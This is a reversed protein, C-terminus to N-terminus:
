PITVASGGSWDAGSHARSEVLVASANLLVDQTILAGLVTSSNIDAWGSLTITQLDLDLRWQGWKVPGSDVDLDTGRTIASTGTFVTAPVVAWVARRGEGPPDIVVRLAVRHELQPSAKGHWRAEIQGRNADTRPTPRGVSLSTIGSEVGARSMPASTVFEAAITTPVGGARGVANHSVTVEIAGYHDDDAM